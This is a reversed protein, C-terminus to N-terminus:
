FSVAVVIIQVTGCRFSIRQTIFLFRYLFLQHYYDVKTYVCSISIELSTEVTLSSLEVSRTDIFYVHFYFILFTVYSLLTEGRANCNGQKIEIVIYDIICALSLICRM